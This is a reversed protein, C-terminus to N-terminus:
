LNRNQLNQRTVRVTTRGDRGHVAVEGDQRAGADCPALAELPKGLARGTEINEAFTKHQAIRVAPLQRRDATRGQVPDFMRRRRFSNGRLQFKYSLLSWPIARSWRQLNDSAIIASAAPADNM